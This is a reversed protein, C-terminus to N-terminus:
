ILSNYRSINVEPSLEKKFIIHEAFANAWFPALSVGKSGLGNFIGIQENKPHLGILPKRDKVTPRIGAIGSKLTFKESTIAKLKNMLEDKGEDTLDLKTNNRHYTAGIWFEHNERPLLFGNKNYIYNTSLNKIEVSLIEGKNPVLPLYDFYPNKRLAAGECFIVKEANIEGYRIGDKSTQLKEHKFKEEVLFNNDNLYTRYANILKSVDLYGSKKTEFLGLPAKINNPVKIKETSLFDQIGPKEMQGYWDNIQKQSDFMRLVPKFHILKQNLLLELDQYFSPLFDFLEKAMWTKKMQRGTIPNFIGAAAKSASDEIGADVIVFSKGFKRFTNSLVTGALGQGIILFDINM